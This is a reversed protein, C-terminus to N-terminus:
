RGEEFSMLEFRVTPENKCIRRPNEDFLIKLYNEPYDVKLEEYVDWMYPTREYPSHADSAIVSVLNHDMLQYAAMRAHWGFRGLFSGKNIQILYGRKRWEYALQPDDQLFEYREAHAVVPRIGMKWIKDLMESAYEPEEAFSFEMLMYASQNLSMIRKKEIQKTLDPTAFVEMGPLIQVPIGEQKVAKRVTKVTEIYGKNYYNEYVGPINCHPTAVMAKVGSDAAMKVMELTDYIDAAGDDIGPLIHAHIDVM